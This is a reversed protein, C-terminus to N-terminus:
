NSDGGRERECVHIALMQAILPVTHPDVTHLSKWRLGERWQAGVWLAAAPRFPGAHSWLQMHM